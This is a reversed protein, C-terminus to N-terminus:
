EAGLLLTEESSAEALDLPTRLSYLFALLNDKASQELKVFRKRAKKAEGGHALIADTITTARGDHLYPATDRVGWLRATIFERNHNSGFPVKHFNEALGDGMDHRKLDSFLPVLLGGGDMPTFNATETLDVEYYVNEEPNTEVEPFSYTLM